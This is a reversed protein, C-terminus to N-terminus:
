SLRRACRVDESVRNHASKSKGTQLKELFVTTGTRVFLAFTLSTNRQQRMKHVKVKICNRGSVSLFVEQDVHLGGDLTQPDGVSVFAAAVFRSCTM